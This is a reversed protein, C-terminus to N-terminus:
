YDLRGRVKADTDQWNAERDYSEAISELVSSMYPFEYAIRRAWGRYKAALEREKDGGEGRWHAGRSNCTGVHFGHGVEESSMLEMAECVTRCPWSGDEDAPARSLLQGIMQDGIKVRGHERCM